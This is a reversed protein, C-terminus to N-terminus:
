SENNSLEDEATEKSIKGQELLEKISEKITIMGLKKSIEIISNVQPIKDERILNRISSNAIMIEYAANRGEGDASRILRQSIVARISGAL